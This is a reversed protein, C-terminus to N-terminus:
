LVNHYSKVHGDDGMGVVVVEEHLSVADDAYQVPRNILERRETTCALRVDVKVDAPAAAKVTAMYKVALKRPQRAIFKGLHTVGSRMNMSRKAITWSVGNMLLRLVRPMEFPQHPPM